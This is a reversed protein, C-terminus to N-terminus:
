APEPIFVELPKQMKEIVFEEQGEFTEGDHALRLPGALSKIHVRDTTWAEFAPARGVATGSVLAGIRPFERDARLVRVDLVGDDLAVRRVPAFGRPEYRGNGIFISWVSMRRGDIELRIPESRRLVRGLAVALAPWKGIRDELREREDVIEPYLGISATNLFLRGAISAADVRGVRSQEIATLADSVDDIGLDHAFHNLTGAPFVALPVGLELAIEAAATASGDGGAAGVFSTHKGGERRLVETIDGDVDLLRAEPLAARIEKRPDTATAPGASSNVTIVGGRAPKSALTRVSKIRAGALQEARARGRRHVAVAVGAGIAAGAAVDLPYHVGTYVRSVGVGTALVGLPLAAPPFELAAATAFAAASATHGSPFSSSVPARLLRRISPVPRSDPRHRRFALKVPGNIIASTIAVSTLGRAAASRGKRGSTASLVAAAAMWLRSKNAARSLKPLTSDFFPSRANAVRLFLEEDIKQLAPPLHRRGTMLALRLSAKDM